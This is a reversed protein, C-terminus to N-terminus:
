RRTPVGVVCSVEENTSRVTALIETAQLAERQCSARDSEASLLLRELESVRGQLRSRLLCPCSSSMVRRVTEVDGGEGEQECLYLVHTSRNM